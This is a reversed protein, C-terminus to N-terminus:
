ALFVWFRSTATVQSSKAGSFGGLSMFAGHLEIFM